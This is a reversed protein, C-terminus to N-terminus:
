NSPVEPFRPSDGGVALHLAGAVTTAVDERWRAGTVQVAIPLGDGDFAVPVAVTPLGTVNQPVTYAMVMERLPRPGDVHDASDPDDRRAPAVASVPSVVADVMSFADDFSRVLERRRETASLYTAIDVRSAASIRGAVDRGYADEQTPWTGLGNAHVHYAEAMQMPVFVDLFDTASPLEVEVIEAGLEELTAITETFASDAAPVLPVESLAPAIGVRFGDLSTALRPAPELGPRGAAIPDGPDAGAMAATMAWLDWVSRTLSGPTDFSPALAVGGTRPIRGLTPKIGLTGCFASPIRVSGGTDSGVAVPIMGSAVAAGSGGSSGGPIRQLDWPNATSGRTAHQTTIGWGFEHSRTTGVIVAGARRLRSVLVADTAAVRGALVESGYDGPSGAVDFLEKVGIPIGHLPGRDLGRALEETRAAAETRASEAAIHAFAGLQGDLRSIRALCAELVEVPSAQSARYLGALRRADLETLETMM